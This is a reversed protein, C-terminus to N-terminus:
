AFITEIKKTCKLEEVKNTKEATMPELVFTAIIYYRLKHIKLKFLWSFTILLKLKWNLLSPVSFKIWTAHDVGPRMM